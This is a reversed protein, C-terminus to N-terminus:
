KGAQVLHVKADEYGAPGGAEAPAYVLHLVGKALATASALRLPVTTEGEDFLPLAM